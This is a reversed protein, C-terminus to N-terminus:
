CALGFYALVKSSLLEFKGAGTYIRKCSEGVKDLALKIWPMSDDDTSAINM